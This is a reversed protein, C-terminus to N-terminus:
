FFLCVFLCFWVVVVVVVVFSHCSVFESIILNETCSCSLSEIILKKCSTKLM